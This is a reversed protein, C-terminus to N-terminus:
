RYVVITYSVIFYRVICFPKKFTVAFTLFVLHGSAFTLFNKEGYM